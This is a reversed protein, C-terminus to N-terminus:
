EEEDAYVDKIYKEFEYVEDRRSLIKNLQLDLEKLRHAISELVQKKNIKDKM